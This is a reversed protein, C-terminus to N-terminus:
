RNQPRQPHRAALSDHRQRSKTSPGAVRGGPHTGPGCAHRRARRSDADTHGHLHLLGTFPTSLPKARLRAPGAGNGGAVATESSILIEGHHFTIVDTPSPDDLFDGHVAAIAEDDLLTLSWKPAADVARQAGSGTDSWILPLAWGCSATLQELQEPRPPIGSRMTTCSLSDHAAVHFDRDAEPSPAREDSM